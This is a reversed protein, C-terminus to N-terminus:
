FGKMVKNMFELSQPVGISEDEPGEYELAVFGNYGAQKLATLCKLHDVDGVGVISAILGWPMNPDQSPTKRFDKFHVYACYPAAIASGVHGEQGGQLYNGVDVTARLNKSNFKKIVDIQEEGTCPLGGHNELALVVGLKEAEKVVQGLGEFILDFSKKLQDKNSRDKIHGGFIRSVPAKVEAAVRLWSKVYDVQQKFKEPEEMNFNNGLSLGSLVLGTKQLAEKIKQAAGETTGLLNAHFDIGESGLSKVHEALQLCTWQKAKWTRHLSYHCISKKM